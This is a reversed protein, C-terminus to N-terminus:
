TFPYEFMLGSFSLELLDTFSASSEQSIPKVNTSNFFLLYLFLFEIEDRTTSLNLVLLFWTDELRQSHYRYPRKGQFDM